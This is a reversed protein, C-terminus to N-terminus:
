AHWSHLIQMYNAREYATPDPCRALSMSGIAQRLSDYEHEELWQRLEAVVTSLHGPGFRLLASVMQVGSAGAMIAKLADASTHVGEAAEVDVGGAQEM